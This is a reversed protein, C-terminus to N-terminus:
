RRLGACQSMGIKVSLPTTPSVTPPKEDPLVRCVPLSLKLSRMMM